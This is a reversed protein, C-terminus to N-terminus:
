SRKTLEEELAKLEKMSDVARWFGDGVYAALRGRSALEPFFNHEIDGKIPLRSIARREFIYVGGNIHTNPIVPKEIFGTVLGDTSNVVGYPSKFPVLLITADVRKQMHWAMMRSVDLDTLIDGNLVLFTEQDFCQAALRLAGGTGLPRDEISYKFDLNKMKRFYDRIKEWKHGAAFIVERVGNKELWSVQWESIPKGAVRVMCKPVTNTLPRLRLGLGGSLIVASKLLPKIRREGMGLSSPITPPLKLKVQGSM